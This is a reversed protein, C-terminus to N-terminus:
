SEFKKVVIRNGNVLSVIVPTDRKIYDGESVVDFNKNDIRAKGAPRLSNTVIGTKGILKELESNQSTVGDKKSLAKKLTVPSKSLLKIGLLILVPALLVDIGIFIYGVEPSISTFVSYLSYGFVLCAAITLIGGSPLVFEVLVIIIGLIQLGVPLLFKSIM